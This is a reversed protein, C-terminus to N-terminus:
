ENKPRRINRESLTDAAAVLCALLLLLLLLFFLLLCLLATSSVARRFNRLLLLLSILYPLLLLASDDLLALLLVLDALLLLALDDLIPFALVLDALLLLLTRDAISLFILSFLLLDPLCFLPSPDFVALADVLLFNVFLITSILPAILLSGNPLILPLSSRDRISPFISPSVCTIVGAILSQIATLLSVEM